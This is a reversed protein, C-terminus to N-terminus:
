LRCPHMFIVRLGKLHSLTFYYTTVQGQFVECFLDNQFLFLSQYLSTSPLYLVFLFNGKSLHSFIFLLLWGEWSLFDSDSNLQREGSQSSSILAKFRFVPVLFKLPAWRNKTSTSSALIFCSCSSLLHAEKM